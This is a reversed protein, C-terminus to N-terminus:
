AEMQQLLEQSGARAAMWTAAMQELGEQSPFALYTEIQQDLSPGHQMVQKLAPSEQGQHRLQHSLISAPVAWSMYAQTLEEASLEVGDMLAVLANSLPSIGEELMELLEEQGFRMEEEM